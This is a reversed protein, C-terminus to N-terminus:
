ISSKSKLRRKLKIIGKYNKLKKKQAKFALYGSILKKFEPVTLNLSDRLSNLEFESVVVNNIHYAGGRVGDGGFQLGGKRDLRFGAKGFTIKKGTWYSQKFRHIFEFESKSILWAVGNASASLKGKQFALLMSGRNRNYIKKTSYVKKNPNNQKNLLQQEVRCSKCKSSNFGGLEAKTYNGSKRLRKKRPVLWEMDCFLKERGCWKCDVFTTMPDNGKTKKHLNIRKEQCKHCVSPRDDVIFHKEIYKNIKKDTTNQILHLKSFELHHKNRGCSQCKHEIRDKRKTM